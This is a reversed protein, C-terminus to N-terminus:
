CILPVPVPPRSSAMRPSVPPRPARPLHPVEGHSVRLPSEFRARRPRATPSVCTAGAVSVREDGEEEQAFDSLATDISDLMSLSPSVACVLCVALVLLRMLTM